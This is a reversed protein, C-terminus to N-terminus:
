LRGGGGRSGFWPSAFDGGNEERQNLVAPQQADVRKGVEDVDEAASAAGGGAGDGLQEGVAPGWGGSCRKYGGAGGCAWPGVTVNVVRYTWRV